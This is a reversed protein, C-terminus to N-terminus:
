DGRKASNVDEWMRRYTSALELFRSDDAYKRLIEQVRVCEPDATIALLDAYEGLKRATTKEEM